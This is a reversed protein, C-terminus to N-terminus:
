GGSLLRKRRKGIFVAIKQNMCLYEKRSITKHEYLYRNFYNLWIEEAVLKQKQEETM